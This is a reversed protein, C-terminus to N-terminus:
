QTLAKFAWAYGFAIGLFLVGLALPVIHRGLELRLPNRYPGEIINSM